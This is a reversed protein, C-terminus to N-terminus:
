ANYKMEDFTMSWKYTPLAVCNMILKKYHLAVFEVQMAINVVKYQSHSHESFLATNDTWLLKYKRNM